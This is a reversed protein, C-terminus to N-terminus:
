FPDVVVFLATLSLALFSILDAMSRAGDPTHRISATTGLANRDTLRHSKAAETAVIAQIDEPIRPTSSAFRVANRSKTAERTSLRATASSRRWSASARDM